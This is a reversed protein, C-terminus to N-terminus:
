QLSVYLFLCVYLGSVQDTCFSFVLIGYGTITEFVSTDTDTNLHPISFLYWHWYASFVSTDTNLILIREPSFGRKPKPFQFWSWTETDTDSGLSGGNQRWWVKGMSKTSQKSIQWPKFLKWSPQTYIILIRISFVM